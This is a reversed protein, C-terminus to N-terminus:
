IVPSPGAAPPLGWALLGGAGICERPGARSTPARGVLGQESRQESPVWEGSARWGLQALVPSGWGTGLGPWCLPSLSLGM